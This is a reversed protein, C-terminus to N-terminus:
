SEVRVLNSCRRAGVVGSGSLAFRGNSASGPLRRKVESRLKQLKDGDLSRVYKGAFGQGLLFPDWYDSFAKFRMAIDIPQEEVNELGGQKWMQSLAGARCLLFHKEDVKEARADVTVSADWFTRLMRVGAGDDWVAASIRGGPKTVGGLSANPSRLHWPVLVQVRGTDPVNTFDVLLPAAHRSWRGMFREYAEADGFM